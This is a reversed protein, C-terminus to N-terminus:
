VVTHVTYSHRTKMALRHYESICFILPFIRVNNLEEFIIKTLHKFPSSVKHWLKNQDKM